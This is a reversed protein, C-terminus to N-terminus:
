IAGPMLVFRMLKNGGGSEAAEQVAKMNAVLASIDDASFTM